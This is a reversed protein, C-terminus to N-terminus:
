GTIKFTHSMEIFAFGLATSTAYLHGPEDDHPRYPRDCGRMYEVFQCQAKYDPEFHGNVSGPFMIVEFM